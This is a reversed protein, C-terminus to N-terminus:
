QRSKEPRMAARRRSEVARRTRDKDVKTPESTDVVPPHPTVQWFADVSTDWTELLEQGLRSNTAAVHAAVLNKLYDASDESAVRGVSVLEANYQNLFMESPDYIYAVGASMGAAFNRGTPGLVVVTGGTMYECGHDGVGEVVAEAGSNRVAFREGARGAAFLRGSTAGYLVTNGIVVNHEAAFAATVPPHVVITGGGLGKGVYDNAEGILHLTIGRVTFAGFSQGATGRFTLQISGDPLGDEHGQKVIRGSIGAGVARDTNAIAFDLEIPTQSATALDM